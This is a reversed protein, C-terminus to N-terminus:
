GFFDGGEGKDHWGVRGLGNSGNGSLFFSRGDTGELRRDQKSPVPLPAEGNKEDYCVPLECAKIGCDTPRRIHLGAWGGRKKGSEPSAWGQPTTLFPKRRMFCSTKALAERKRGGSGWDKSSRSM